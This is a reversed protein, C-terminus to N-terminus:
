FNFTYYEDCESCPGPFDGAVHKGFLSEGAAWVAEIDDSFVNGLVDRRGMDDRYVPVSGDILVPMDRKLHWCPFHELPSLDSPQKQPLFSAYADYKQIIVQAGEDNWKKYSVELHEKKADDVM